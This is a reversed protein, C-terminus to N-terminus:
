HQSHGHCLSKLYPITGRTLTFHQREEPRIVIIDIDPDNSQPFDSLIQKRPHLHVLSEKTLVDKVPSALSYLNLKWDAFKCEPDRECIKRKVHGITDVGLICDIPFVTDINDSFACWLTRQSPEAM